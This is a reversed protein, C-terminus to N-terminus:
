PAASQDRHAAPGNSSLTSMPPNSTQPPTGPPPPYRGAADSADVESNHAPSRDRMWLQSTLHSSSKWISLVNASSQSGSNSKPPWADPTPTEPVKCNWVEQRVAVDPTTPRRVQPRQHPGDPDPQNGGLAGRGPDPRLFSVTSKHPPDEAPVDGGRARPHQQPTDRTSTASSASTRLSALTPHGWCIYQSITLDSTDLLLRCRKEPQKRCGGGGGWGLASSSSSNSTLLHAWWGRM